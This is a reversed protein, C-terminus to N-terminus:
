VGARMGRGASRGIFSMSSRERREWAFRAVALPPSAPPRGGTGASVEVESSADLSLLLSVVRVAAVIAAKPSRIILTCVHVVECM